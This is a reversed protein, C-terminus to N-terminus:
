HSFKIMMRSIGSYIRRNLKKSEYECFELHVKNQFKAVTLFITKYKGKLRPREREHGCNCGYEEQKRRILTIVYRKIHM